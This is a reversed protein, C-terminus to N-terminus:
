FPTKNAQKNKCSSPSLEILLNSAKFVRIELTGDEYDVYSFDSITADVQSKLALLLLCATKYIGLWHAL